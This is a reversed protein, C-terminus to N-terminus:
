GNIRSFRHMFILTIGTSYFVVTQRAISDELLLTRRCKTRNLAKVLIQVSWLSEHENLTVM